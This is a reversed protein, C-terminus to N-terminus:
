TLTYVRASGRDSSPQGKGGQGRGAVRGVVSMEVLSSPAISVPVSESQCSFSSYVRTRIQCDFPLLGEEHPWGPWMPLM